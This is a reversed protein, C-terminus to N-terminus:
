KLHEEIFMNDICEKCISGPGYEGESSDVSLVMINQEGCVVCTGQVMEITGVRDYGAEFTVM